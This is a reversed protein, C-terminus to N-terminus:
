RLWRVMILPRFDICDNKKIVNQQNFNLYYQWIEHNATSAISKWNIIGKKNRSNTTVIQRRDRVKPPIGPHLDV